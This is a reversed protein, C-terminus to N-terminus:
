KSPHGDQTLGMRAQFAMIADRSGSGIRGDIAGDYYGLVSLKRQLEEAESATLKTFPRNWDSVLPGYGAIQDALLGVSMAYLDSNNYRKLVFFNRLMLFAPGERGDPVKLEAKDSSRPFPKGNARVVGLEQWKGLTLSGGPFKGAPLAVEYGWTKGTQWGN